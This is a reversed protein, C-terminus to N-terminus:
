YMLGGGIVKVLTKGGSNEDSPEVTCAVKRFTGRNQVTVDIRVENILPAFM